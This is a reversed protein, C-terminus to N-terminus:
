HSFKTNMFTENYPFVTQLTATEGKAPIGLHVCHTGLFMPWRSHFSTRLACSKLPLIIKLIKKVIVTFTLPPHMKIGTHHPAPDEFTLTGLHGFTPCWPALSATAQPIRSPVMGWDGEPPGLGAQSGAGGQSLGWRGKLSRDYCCGWPWFGLQWSSRLALSFVRELGGGGGWCLGLPDPLNM